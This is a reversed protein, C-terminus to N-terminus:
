QLIRLPMICQVINVYINATVGYNDAVFAAQVIYMKLLITLSNPICQVCVQYRDIKPCWLLIKTQLLPVSCYKFERCFLWFNGFKVNEIKFLAQHRHHSIDAIASRYWKQM